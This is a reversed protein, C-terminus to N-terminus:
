WWGGDTANECTLQLAPWTLRLIPWSGSAPALSANPEDFAAALHYDYTKPKLDEDDARWKGARRRGGELAYDDAGEGTDTYIIKDLVFLECAEQRSIAVEARTM